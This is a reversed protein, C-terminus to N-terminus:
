RAADAQDLASLQAPEIMRFGSQEVHFLRKRYAALRM